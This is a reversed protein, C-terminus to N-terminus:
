GWCPWHLELLGTLEQAWGGTTILKDVDHGQLVGTTILFHCIYQSIGRELNHKRGARSEERTDERVASMVRIKSSGELGGSYIDQGVNVLICFASLGTSWSTSHAETDLKVVHSLFRLLQWQSDKPFTWQWPWKVQEGLSKSRPFRLYFVVREGRTTLLTKYNCM